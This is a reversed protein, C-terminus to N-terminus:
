IRYQHRTHLKWFCGFLAVVYISHNTPRRAHLLDLNGSVVIDFVPRVGGVLRAIRISDEEDHVFSVGTVEIPSSTQKSSITVISVPNLTRVRQKSKKQPTASALDSALSYVSIKGSASLVFLNPHSSAPSFSIQRADSDLSISAVLKGELASDDPVDWLYVHRDAEAMSAFRTSPQSESSAWQLSTVNSAHGIFSAREKPKAFESVPYADQSTSLLRISHHALLLDVSGPEPGGRVSMSTCPMREENKWSLIHEGKRADWFRLSSDGGSTWISATKQHTSTSISLISSTSSPHSLTRVVRGHSPDFILLSGNSLGLTVVETTNSLPDTASVQAVTNRKKRKKKPSADEEEEVAVPDKALDFQAWSLATVHASEVVHEAVSQGTTTDHVRLRHKDVSLSLSAFLHGKPSFSSLATFSSADEVMPQSLASSSAPRARSPATRSKKSKQTPPAM